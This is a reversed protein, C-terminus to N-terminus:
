GNCRVAPHVNVPITLAKSILCQRSAEHIAEKAKSLSDENPVIVTPEVEVRNLLFDGNAMQAVGVATSQYSVIQGEYKDMLWDFTTMICAEISAVFLHEPSWYGTPGGFEPPCAIGISKKDDASLRGRRARTSRISTEFHYIRPNINSNMKM